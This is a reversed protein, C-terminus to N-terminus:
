AVEKAKNKISSRRNNNQTKTDAWRCNTPEYNGNNDIRDITCKGRAANPDYGTSMAWAHFSEYDHWEECVEIGRAGYNKFSPHDHNYCRKMMAAWVQYLRRNLVKYKKRKCGCDKSSGDLLTYISVEREVGCECRCLWKSTSGARRIATWSGFQQGTYDKNVLSEKDCRTTKGHILSRGRADFERGCDCRCRWVAESNRSGNRYLVTLHGFRQGPELRILQGM